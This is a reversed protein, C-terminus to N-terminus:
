NGKMKRTLKTLRAFDYVRLDFTGRCWAAFTHPHPAIRLFERVPNSHGASAALRVFWCNPAGPEFTEEQPNWCAETALLFVAPTSWVYGASMHEGVLEWFPKAPDHEDQWHQARQWPTM